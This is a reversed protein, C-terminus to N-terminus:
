RLAEFRTKAESGVYPRCWGGHTPDGTAQLATDVPFVASFYEGHRAQLPDIVLMLPQRSVMLGAVLATRAEEDIFVNVKASGLIGTPDIVAMSVLDPTPKGERYGFGGKKILPVFFGFKEGGVPTTAKDDGKSVKKMRCTLLKDGEAGLLSAQVPAAALGAALFAAFMRIM